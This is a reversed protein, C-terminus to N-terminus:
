QKLLKRTVSGADSELRILYLGASLSRVNLSFSEQGALRHTQLIQGSNNLLKLRKFDGIGEVEVIDTAPNPNVLITSASVPGSTGLVQYQLEEVQVSKLTFQLIGMGLDITLWASSDSPATMKFLYSYESEAPGVSLNQYDSYVNYPASPEGLYTSFSHFATAKARFSVRYLKGEILPIENKVLQVHWAQTGPNQVDISLGGDKRSMTASAEPNVNLNWGSATAAFDSTYLPLSFLRWPNPCPTM